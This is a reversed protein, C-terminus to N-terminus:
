IKFKTFYNISPGIGLGISMGSFIPNIDKFYIQLPIGFYIVNYELESHTDKQPFDSLVNSGSRRGFIYGISFYDNFDTPNLEITIDFKTQSDYDRENLNNCGEIIEKRKSSNDKICIKNNGSAGELGRDNNSLDTEFNTNYFNYMLGIRFNWSEEKSFVQIPIFLVIILLLYKM